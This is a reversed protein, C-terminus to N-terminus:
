FKMRAKIQWLPLGHGDFSNTDGKCKTYMEQHKIENLVYDCNEFSIADPQFCEIRKSVFHKLLWQEAEIGQEQIGVDFRTEGFM